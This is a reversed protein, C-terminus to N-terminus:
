SRGPMEEFASPYSNAPETGGSLADAVWKFWEGFNAFDPVANAPDHWEGSELIRWRAKDQHNYYVPYEGDAGPQTVDFCFASEEDGGSAFPVLHNNSLEPEDAGFSIGSPYLIGNYERMGEANLIIFEEHGSSEGWSIHASSFCTLAYALSPPIKWAPISGAEPSPAKLRKKTDAKPSTCSFERDPSSDAWEQLVGIAADITKKPAKNVTRKAAKKTSEKPAKKASAPEYGKKLKSDILKKAAAKAENPSDFSKSKATGNAGVRGFRVTHSAGDVVIEWFKHSQAKQYELYTKKSM